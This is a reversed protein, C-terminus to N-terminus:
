EERIKKIMMSFTDAYFKKYMSCFPDSSQIYGTVLYARARCGGGCLFKFECESCEVIDKVDSEWCKKQVRTERIIELLGKEGLTGM